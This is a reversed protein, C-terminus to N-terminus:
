AGAAFAFKRADPDYRVAGAARVDGASVGILRLPNAFGVKLMDDLGLIELSALHNMCQLM